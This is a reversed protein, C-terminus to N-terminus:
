RFRRRDISGSGSGLCNGALLWAKARKQLSTNEPYDRIATRLITEDKLGFIRELAQAPDSASFWHDFLDCFQLINCGPKMFDRNHHYLLWSECFYYRYEWVPFYLAFFREAEQFSALCDCLLLPEGQPIHVYLTQPGTVYALSTRSPPTEPCRYFQFQLRGLRFLQLSVHNKLWGANKLGKNQNNECWIRIDSMTQIYVSDPIGLKQYAKRAMCARLLVIALRTLDDEQELCSFDDGPGGPQYATPASNQVKELLATLRAPEQEILGATQLRLPQALQLLEMLKQLESAPLLGSPTLQEKSNTFSKM